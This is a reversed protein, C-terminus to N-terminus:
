GRVSETEPADDGEGSAGAAEADAPPAPPAGFAPIQKLTTAAIVALGVFLVALVIATNNYALTFAERAASLLSQGISEPLSSAASTASALSDNAAAAAGAPVGAPITLHAQYFVTALSGITAIGLATGLEGSTTGLSGASGAKEPPATMMVLQNSLMNVPAVGIFVICVGIMLVVMGGVASVQTLVVMGIAGVLTGAALVTAPKIKKTLQTAIQIGFIVLVSPLLLWLAAGLASYGEVLQLHLTMLMGNGGLVAGALLNLVLAGAVTRVGFLGLDLLPDQLRRQRVVFGIGIGIGLVLVVFPWVAWGNRALEKLGYIVPLITALSLLVSFFDLKGPAGSRINPLLFPGTVLLLVMVPVAILFISGWWFSNLLLGGLTPGLSIGVVMATSWVGMAAGM